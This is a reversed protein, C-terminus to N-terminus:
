PTEQTYKLPFNLAYTNTGSALVAKNKVVTSTFGIVPVSRTKVATEDEYTFNIDVWGEGFPSNLSITHAGIDEREGHEGLNLVNTEHVLKNQQEAMGPLWPSLQWDEKQSVVRDEERDYFTAGVTVDVPGPKTVYLAEGTTPDVMPNGYGDLQPTKIQGWPSGAYKLPFTLVLETSADSAGGITFDSKVTKKLLSTQIDDFDAMNYNAPIVLGKLGDIQADASPWNPNDPNAIVLKALDAVDGQLDPLGYRPAHHNNGTGTYLGNLAVPAYSSAWAEDPNIVYVNGYLGGTPLNGLDTSTFSTTDLVTPTSADVAAQYLKAWKGEPKWTENIAACNGPKRIGDAGAKQHEVAQAVTVVKPLDQVIATTAAAKNWSAMEIIEIHGKESGNLVGFDVGNAPMGKPFASICSTDASVLKPGNDGMVVAGTWMDQPSLYLNFDLSDASDTYRRFRVKVAKYEGTTNTLHLATYNGNEVSYYPYLLAQGEGGHSVEVAAQAATAAGMITAAAIAQSLVKKM